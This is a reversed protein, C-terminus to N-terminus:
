STRLDTGDFALWFFICGSRCINIYGAREREGFLVIYLVVKNLSNCGDGVIRMMRTNGQIQEQILWGDARWSVSPPASSM